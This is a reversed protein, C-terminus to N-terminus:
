ENNQVSCQVLIARAPACDAAYQAMQPAELHAVAPRWKRVTQHLAARFAPSAADELVLVVEVCAALIEPPPTALRKTFAVLVPDFDASLPAALDPSVILARPRGSVLQGPFVAVAGSTLALILEEPYEPVGPLGGGLAMGAATRLLAPRVRARLRRTAQRWLKRFLKGSAVARVLFKLYNVELIEELQEETYYRSTTARHRHEVVAGAVYVSPWGRQWARYGLDLDEVYAPEYAQNVGGLTRLRAADYLSCGGSGYLVYSLDEGPLPEDCRIPFDYPHSQAMVTKGTEERRIGEPFRIQATACFLDPVREFAGVLAGFFGPELLMDNNLLCIHSYRARAVGRNVARAFSLPPHSLEIHVQPWAARLWEATGDDSGNDAVIIEATFSELGQAIAPLQAELLLKGNRSPIIVSIGTEAPRPACTPSRRWQPRLIGAVRAAAYWLAIQIGSKVNLDAPAALDASSRQPM